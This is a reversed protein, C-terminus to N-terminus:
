EERSRCGMIKGKMTELLYIEMEYRFRKKESVKPSTKTDPNVIILKLLRNKMELNKNIENIIM